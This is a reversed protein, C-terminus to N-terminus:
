CMRKRGYVEKEENEYINPNLLEKTIKNIYNFPTSFKNKTNDITTITKLHLTGQLNAGASPSVEKFSNFNIFFNFHFLYEKYAFVM